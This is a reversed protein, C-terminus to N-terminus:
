LLGYDMVNGKSYKYIGGLTSLKQFGESRADDLDIVAINAGVQGLSWAFNLGLGRNGGTIVIIKGRVDFKNLATKGTGLHKSM